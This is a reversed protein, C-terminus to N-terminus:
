LWGRLSQQNQVAEWRSSLAIDLLTLRAPLFVGNGEADQVRLILAPLASMDALCSVSMVGQYKCWLWSPQLGGSVCACVCGFLVLLVHKHAVFCVQEQCVSGVYGSFVYFHVEPQM